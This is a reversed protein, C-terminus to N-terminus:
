DKRETVSFPFDLATRDMRSRYRVWTRMRHFQRPPGHARVLRIRM